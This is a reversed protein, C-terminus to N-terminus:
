GAVFASGTWTYSGGELPLELDSTQGYTGNFIIKYLGTPETDFIAHKEVLPDGPWAATIAAGGDKWCYYNEYVGNVTIDYHRVNVTNEYTTSTPKESVFRAAYKGAEKNVGIQMWWEGTEPITLDVTQSGSAGENFIINVYSGVNFTAKKWDTDENTLTKGPWDAMKNDGNWVYYNTFGSPVHITHTITGPDPPTPTGDGGTFYAYLISNNKSPVVTHKTLAGTGEYSVWGDFTAGSTSTIKDSGPLTSGAEAVYTITNELFKDEVTEGPNGEYLGVKTLVLYTTVEAAARAMETRCGVLSLSTAIIASALIINRKM